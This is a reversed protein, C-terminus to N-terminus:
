DVGGPERADHITWSKMTCSTPEFELLYDEDESYYKYVVGMGGEGLKELIEYHSIITPVV